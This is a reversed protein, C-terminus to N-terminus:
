VTTIKLNEFNPNTAFPDLIRHKEKLNQLNFCMHEYNEKVLRVRDELKSFNVSNFKKILQRNIRLDTEIRRLLRSISEM